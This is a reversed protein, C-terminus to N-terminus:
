NLELREEFNCVKLRCKKSSIASSALRGGVIDASRRRHPPPSLLYNSKCGTKNIQFIRPRAADPAVIQDLDQHNRKARDQGAALGGDIHGHKGLGFLLEKAPEELQVITNWAVVSKASHKALEIRVLETSAESIKHRAEALGTGAHDGDVPLRQAPREVRTAGARSEM